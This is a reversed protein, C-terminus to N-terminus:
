LPVAREIESVVGPYVQRRRNDLPSDWDPALSKTNHLIGYAPSQLALDSGCYAEISPVDFQNSHDVTDDRNSQEACAVATRKRGYSKTGAHFANKPHLYWFYALYNREFGLRFIRFKALRKQNIYSHTKLLRGPSM